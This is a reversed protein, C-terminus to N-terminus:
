RLTNNGLSIKCDMGDLFIPRLSEYWLRVEGVLTLCFRQVKVGEPFAHTDMWDNARLLHAEADEDPKSAFEPKFHSWNLQPIPASQIPQVPPVIPQAPHTPLQVPLALPVVQPIVPSTSTCTTRWRGYNNINYTM